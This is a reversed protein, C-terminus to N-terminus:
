MREKGPTTRNVAETYWAPREVTTTGINTFQISRISRSANPVPPYTIPESVTYSRIFGRSDIRASVTINSPNSPLINELHYLTTGNRSVRDIDPNMWPEFVNNFHTGPKPIAEVHSPRDRSPQSYSISNNSVERGFSRTEGYWTEVESVQRPFGNITTVRYIRTGEVYTTVMRRAAVTGNPFKLIWMERVTFSTNELHKTHTERLASANILGYKTLGPALYSVSPTTSPDTPVPAPTVQSAPENDGLLAGCGAMVVLVAVLLGVSIVRLM